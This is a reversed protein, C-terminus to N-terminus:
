RMLVVIRLIVLCILGFTTFIFTVHIFHYSAEESLTCDLRDDDDYDLGSGSSDHDSRDGDIDDNAQHYPNWPLMLHILDFVNSVISSSHLLGERDSQSNDDHHDEHRHGHQEQQQQQLHQRYEHIYLYSNQTNHSLEFICPLPFYSEYFSRLQYELEESPHKMNDNICIFKAQRQRVSDLQMLTNTYNDGIM